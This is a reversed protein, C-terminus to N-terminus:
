SLGKPISKQLISNQMVYMPNGIKDFKSTRGVRTIANKLYLKTGDPLEYGNWEDRIPTIKMDAKGKEVFSNLQEITYTEENPEGRVGPYSEVGTVVELNVGLDPIRKDEPKKKYFVVSIVLVKAKIVSKDELEYLNWEESITKFKIFDFDLRQM